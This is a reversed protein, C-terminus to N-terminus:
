RLSTAILPIASEPHSPDTVVANGLHRIAGSNGTVYWGGWRQDLPSRHDTLYNGL